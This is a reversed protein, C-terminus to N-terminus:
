KGATTAVRQLGSIFTFYWSNIALPFHLFSAIVATIRLSTTMAFAISRSLRFHFSILAQGIRISLSAKSAQQATFSHCLFSSRCHPSPFRRWFWWPLVLIAANRVFVYLRRLRWRIFVYIAEIVWATSVRCWTPFAWQSKFSYGSLNSGPAFSFRSLDSVILHGTVEARISWSFYTISRRSILHLRYPMGMPLELIHSSVAKIIHLIYGFHIHINIWIADNVVLKSFDPQRQRYWTWTVFGWCQSTASSVSSVNDCGVPRDRPKNQFLPFSQMQEGSSVLRWHTRSWGPKM